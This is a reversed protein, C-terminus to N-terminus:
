YRSNNCMSCHKTSRMRTVLRAMGSYWLNCHKCQIVVEGDMWVQYIHLGLDLIFVDSSDLAKKCLPREKIEIHKQLQVHMCTLVCLYVHVHMCM